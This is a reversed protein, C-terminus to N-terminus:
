PSVSIVNWGPSGRTHPGLRSWRRQWGSRCSPGCCSCGPSRARRRCAPVRPAGPIPPRPRADRAGRRDASGHRPRRRPDAPPGAPAPHGAHSRHVPTPWPDGTAGSGADPGSPAPRGAPRGLVRDAPVRGPGHAHHAPGPGPGPEHLPVAPQRCARTIPQPYLTTIPRAQTLWFRGDADLAWETDQPAGYHEQVRAGLRTLEGLQADNLCPEADGADRVVRDTGGGPRSVVAVRKDGARRAVVTGSRSDVVFHDPNVAGSVVAEGLGPSADIVTEHRAGTVPNATFMVGAITADVMRQVVVALAVDRHDIGNANRYSVARETWLSAWCRRVADLVADDGVMNLYSDQQGAFSAYALDEATASSRVAVAVDNGLGHYSALIDRRLDDPVPADRVLERAHETVAALDPGGAALREFLEDLRDAVVARYAGTPVCFGPPTPLGAAIMVGLNVAKGGADAIRDPGLVALDVLHEM